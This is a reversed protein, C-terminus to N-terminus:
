GRAAEIAAQLSDRWSRSTYTAGSVIEVGRASGARLASARLRPEARANLAETHEDVGSLSVTRVGVLRGRLLTAEVQIASFPTTLLPGSARKAGRPLPAAPQTSPPRRAASRPTARARAVASPRLDAPPRTDFRTLAVVVAATVILAALARTM